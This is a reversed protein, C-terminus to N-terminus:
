ERGSAVAKTRCPTVHRPRARGRSITVRRQGSRRKRGAKLALEVLYKFQELVYISQHAGGEGIQEAKGDAGVDKQMKFINASESSAGLNPSGTAVESLERSIVNEPLIQQYPAVVSLVAADQRLGKSKGSITRAWHIRRMGCIVAPELRTHLLSAGRESFTTRSCPPVM